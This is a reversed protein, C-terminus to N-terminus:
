RLFRTKLIIMNVKVLFYLKRRFNGIFSKGHERREVIIPVEKMRIGRKAALVIMEQRNTYAEKLELKRLMDAKVARYGSQSDTIKQGTLFSIMFSFYKNGYKRIFSTEANKGLRRSGIVFDAEGKNIPEIMMPIEQPNHQGDGDLNVVIDPNLKLAEEYCRKVTYGVGMRKHNKFVLAGAKKAEESTSDISGDDIVVAENCYKLCGKVVNGIKKEENLAPITAVIKTM